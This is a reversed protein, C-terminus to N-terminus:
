TVTSVRKEVGRGHGPTQAQDQQSGGAQAPCHAGHDVRGEGEAQAEAAGPPSCSRRRYEGGRSAMEQLSVLRM